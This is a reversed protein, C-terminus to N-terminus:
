PSGLFVERFSCISSFNGAALVRAQGIGDALEPAGAREEIQTDAEECVSALATPQAALFRQQLAVLVGQM